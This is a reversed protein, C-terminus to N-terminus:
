IWSPLWMHLQWFWLPIGIGLYLPIFFLFVAFAATAGVVVLKRARYRHAMLTITLLIWPEFTVSYFQFSTRNWYVLWPLYGAIFGTFVLVSLRDRNEAFWAFWFGLAVIGALWIVPNGIPDIATVLGDHNEFFFSTPRLMALWTSPSSQYPHQVSLTSHFHYMQLHYNIFSGLVNNSQYGWGHSIFWGSWSALYPVLALPTLLLSKFRKTQFLYYAMFVVLFFAVSWKIAAGAGLSFVMALMWRTPTASTLARLLFYFGLLAVTMVMGDLIATRSIVIAQGDIALLFAPVLAWRKSGFLLIAVLFILWVAAIGFLAVMIRWGFPNGVGFLQMGLGIIWKGLPSHVVFEPSGLVGKADFTNENGAAWQLEHGAKWLTYSDKVYYTEDFVLKAPSGLNWLRTIAALMLIPVVGFRDGLSRFWNVM